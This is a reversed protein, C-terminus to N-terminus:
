ICPQLLCCALSFTHAPHLFLLLFLFSVNGRTDLYCTNHDWAEPEPVEQEMSVWDMDVSGSWAVLGLKGWCLVGSYLLDKGVVVVVLLDGAFFFLFGDFDGCLFFSAFDDFLCLLDLDGHRLWLLSDLDLDLLGELFFLDLHTM